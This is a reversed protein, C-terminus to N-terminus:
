YLENLVEADKLVNYVEDVFEFYGAPYSNSGHAYITKGDALEAEVMISQGDLVEMDVGDFGDWGKVNCNAALKAFKEYMAKDGEVKKYLCEERGAGDYLSWRGFYQSVTIGDDTKLLEYETVQAMMGSERITIRKFDTKEMKDVSGTQVTSIYPLKAAAEFCGSFGVAAVAAAIVATIGSM